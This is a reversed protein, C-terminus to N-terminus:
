LALSPSADLPRETKCARLHVCLHQALNILMQEISPDPLKLPTSALSKYFTRCPVCCQKLRDDHNDTYLKNSFEITYMKMMTDQELTAMQKSVAEVNGFTQLAMGVDFQLLRRIIVM